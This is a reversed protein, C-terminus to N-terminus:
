LSLYTYDVRSFTILFAVFVYFSIGVKTEDEQVPPNTEKSDVEQSADHAKKEVTAKKEMEEKIRKEEKEKRLREEEEAKEILRKQEAYISLWAEGNFSNWVFNANTQCIV